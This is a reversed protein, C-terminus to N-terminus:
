NLNNDQNPDNVPNHSELNELNSIDEEDPYLVEDKAAKNKKSNEFLMAIRRVISVFLRTLSSVVVLAAAICLSTVLTSTALSAAKSLDGALMEMMSDYLLAGPVLPIIGPIIFITTADKGARSGFEALIALTCAGLFAAIAYSYGNQSCYQMAMQGGAGIVCTYFMTSAPSHFLICFGLVAVLACLSLLWLPYSNAETALHGGSWISYFNMVIGVGGAIGVALLVAESFRALGSLMDGSLMDRAANTIAVGPLYISMSATIVPGLSHDIGSIFLIIALFACIACGVFTRIFKPFNLMEIFVSITYICGGIAGACLSDYLDGGFLPCLALGVLVAGLIRLPFPYKQEAAIAKLRQFGADVTLDTSTFERSFQNLQSIKKLDIQNYHIRKIFTQVDEDRKGSDLSLFIGTTTAFCEVYDIRCARCIRVITEEVRYVEAGSKMMLEGAFLAMVLVRKQFENVM